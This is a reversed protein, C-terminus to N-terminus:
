SKQSLVKIGITKKKKENEEAIKALVARIAEGSSLIEERFERASLRLVGASLAGLQILGDSTVVRVKENKGIRETLRSLFVDALEGEKTYVVTLGDRDSVEANGKTMYADFVVVTERGTFGHDGALLDLLKERAQALDTEALAALEEWAHIVNYGDVLYLSASPRVPVDPVPEKEKATIKRLEGYSKRRIPGFEREMIAELEKDDAKINGRLERPKAATLPAEEKKETLAAALHMYRPVDQWPVVFGAGHTCFVSDPTNALDATPDYAAEAIVREADHCPFYGEVRLFVRGKGHTYANLEIPYDAFTSVPVRGTLVAFDTGSPNAGSGEEERAEGSRLILDSIARGVNERPLEIRFAYWPELLVTKGAAYLNMLGQRVARCAAERFDGSQTHKIHSRGSVLTIKADTLPAGILVGRHKKETLHSLILRQWSGELYDTDAKTALVLGSGAPLPEILLHVEAYHRLPEFHGVGEAVGTVTERYLIRGDAFSIETGFREAVLASLVECQIKGMLQAHIEGFRENWSLSLSPEEEELTRLKAFFLRPDVERPLVVKYNLVPELVARGNEEGPGIGQGAFTYEPGTVSVVAGAPAADVQVSKEGSLIRISTIKEERETETLDRLVVTQRATLTGGTVRLHTEKTGNKDHTIKFVRASFDGSTDSVSPRVLADVTDLLEKVGDLKLGSGFCVPFLKREGFLAAKTEESLTGSSLYEDLATEDTMAAREDFDADALDLCADSLRSALDSLVKERDFGTLDNKSVFILVPVRYKALLRWLTETHAQVGETGSLVLIAADLIPLVREAEASFDVHGPTDLLTVSGRPLDIAAEKSFITIGREKELEHTDLVTDGHDVRGVKRTKGTLYLIAEALTTKGADVHALIGVARNPLPM